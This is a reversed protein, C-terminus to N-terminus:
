LSSQTIKSFMLIYFPIFVNWLRQDRRRCRDHDRVVPKVRNTSDSNLISLGSRCPRYSTELLSTFTAQTRWTIETIQITNDSNLLRDLASMEAYRKMVQIPEITSQVEWDAKDRKKYKKSKHHSAGRCMVYRQYGGNETATMSSQASTPIVTPAM